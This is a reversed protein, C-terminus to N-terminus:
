LFKLQSEIRNLFYQNSDYTYNNVMEYNFPKKCNNIVNITKGGNNCIYTVFLSFGGSVFLYKSINFCMKILIYIKEHKRDWPLVDDEGDIFVVDINSLRKIADLDSFQTNNEYLYPELEHEKLKICKPKGNFSNKKLFIDINKAFLDFRKRGSAKESFGDVILVQM